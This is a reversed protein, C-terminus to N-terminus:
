VRLLAVFSCCRNSRAGLFIGVWRSFLHIGRECSYLLLNLVNDHAYARRVSLCSPTGEYAELSAAVAPALEVGDRSARVLFFALSVEFGPPATAIQRDGRTM